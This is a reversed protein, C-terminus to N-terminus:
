PCMLGVVVTYSFQFHHQYCLLPEIAGIMSTSGMVLFPKARLAFFIKDVGRRGLDCGCAVQKTKMMSRQVAYPLLINNPDTHQHKAQLTTNSLLSLISFRVKTCIAASSFKRLLM